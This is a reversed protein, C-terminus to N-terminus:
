MQSDCSDYGDRAELCHGLAISLSSLLMECKEEFSLSNFDEMFRLVFVHFGLRSRSRHNKERTNLCLAVVENPSNINM